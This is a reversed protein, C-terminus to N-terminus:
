LNENIKWLYLHVLLTTFDTSYVDYVYIPIFNSHLEAPKPPKKQINIQKNNRNNYMFM